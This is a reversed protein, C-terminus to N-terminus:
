NVLVTTQAGEFNSFKMIKSWHILPVVLTVTQLLLMFLQQSYNSLLWLLLFNTLAVIFTMKILIPYQYIYQSM